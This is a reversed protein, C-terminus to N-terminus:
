SIRLRRVQNTTFAALALALVLYLALEMWQFQWYRAGPQYRVLQALRLGNIADDCQQDTAAPDRCIDPGPGRYPKGAADVLSLSTIWAGPISVPTSVTFNGAASQILQPRDPSLVMPVSLSLPERYHARVAVPVAVLVATLAALTIAMAPVTRRALLGAAVGLACAFLAYGVPALDRAGFVVQSFHNPLSLGEDAAPLGAARDLPRSWWTVAVSVAADALAATLVTLSLRVALWRTRSVSQTWVLRFTGDELEQAIMPAGWFLGILVPVLYAIIMAAFFVPQYPRSAGAFAHQAAPCNGLAACSALGSERFARALRSGTVTLGVGLVAFLVITTYVQARLQRWSLWIV